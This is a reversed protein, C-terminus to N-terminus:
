VVSATYDRKEIVSEYIALAMGHNREATYKAEFEARAAPRMAAWAEPHDLAWRVQRALDDADGPRFLRGTRGHEVLEAIAGIDSVIVPTGVAFAEMAVRGFTEYLESPFVLVRADGMLRYVEEPPQRGLWEVSAQARAAEAALSSLPGDGVIKLPIRGELREWARVLTGLGKERALRGVFLAYGGAGTGLPPDTGLFNPKYFVREEPLGGAVFKQQAFRSCAIFGDVKRHWTRLLRHLMLHAAVGGSEARSDRYCAHLVGPWPVAKGFCDECVHGDRHFSANLCFLRYNRLTQVVPVGEAQAAYYAAPSILPFTNNFHAVEPRTERILARLEDYADRNWLTAQAVERASMEKIADNHLEYRTVEHGHAQLLEVEAAFSHGEGGKQQYYNHALLIRM